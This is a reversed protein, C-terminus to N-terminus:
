EEGLVGLARALWYAWLWNGMADGSYFRTMYLLEPLHREPDQYHRLGAIDISALIHRAVDIMEPDKLHPYAQLAARAIFTSASGRAGSVYANGVWWDGPKHEKFFGAEPRRPRGTKMDVLFHTYITGDPALALKGEEWMQRMSQRWTDVWTNEPDHRLLFDLEMVDMSVSGEMNFILWAQQEQEYPLAPCEGAQRPRLQEEVPRRNVGLELLRDYEAKLAADGAHRHALLLLSPFRGLPWQMDEFVFYSYRYDRKMWFRVMHALMRGILEREEPEAYRCFHDLALMVYLVQDSSTETSFRDGYIKPFFGEELERGMDYVYKVAEFCRRARALAEPDAEVEYRYLYGQMAAGTAMGCNEYNHWEAPTYGPASLADQGEGITAETVPGATQYDLFTYVLGHPDIFHEEAWAEMERAREILSVSM